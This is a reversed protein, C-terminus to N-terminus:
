NRSKSNTKKTKAKPTKNKRLIKRSILAATLPWILTVFVGSLFFLMQSTQGEANYANLGLLALIVIGVLILTKSQEVTAERQLRKELHRLIAYGTFYGLLAFAGSFDAPVVLYFITVIGIFAVLLIENKINSIHFNMKNIRVELKQVFVALVIGIFLGVIVDSLYHVGLYIRSVGVLLALIILIYKSNKNIKTAIFAYTALAWSMTSHTSPMSFTKEIELINIGSPRPRAIIIKLAGGVFGSIVILTAVTFSKKEKGMWFLIAAIFFVTIPNGLQTAIRFFLDLMPSAYSQLIQNVVIEEFM